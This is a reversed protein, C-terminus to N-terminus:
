LGSRGTETCVSRTRSLLFSACSDWIVREVCVCVCVCVHVFKWRSLRCYFYQFLSLDFAPLFTWVLSCGFCRAGPKEAEDTCVSKTCSIFSAGPEYMSLHRRLCVTLAKTVRALCVHVNEMSFIVTTTDPVIVLRLLCSDKRM